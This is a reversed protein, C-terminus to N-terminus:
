EFRISASTKEIHRQMNHEAFYITYHAESEAVIQGNGWSSHKVYRRQPQENQLTKAEEPVESVTSPENTADVGTSQEDNVHQVVECIQPSIEKQLSVAAEEVAQLKTTQKTITRASHFREFQIKYAQAEVAVIEGRGFREHEVFQGVAFTDTVPTPIYINTQQTLLDTIHQPIPNPVHLQERDVEFLFRSPLKPAGNERKGESETVYLRDEARTLAFPSLYVKSTIELKEGVGCRAHSNGRM